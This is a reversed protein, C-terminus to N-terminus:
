GRTEWYKMGKNLLIEHCCGPPSSADFSPHLEPGVPCSKVSLSWYLWPPNTESSAFILSFLVGSFPKEWFNDTYMKPYINLTVAAQWQWEQKPFSITHHKTPSVSMRFGCENKKPDRKTQSSNSVCYKKPWRTQKHSAKKM